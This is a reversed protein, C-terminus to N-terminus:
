LYSQNKEEDHHNLSILEAVICTAGRVLDAPTERRNEEEAPGAATPPNRPSQPPPFQIAILATPPRDSNQEIQVHPLVLPPPSLLKPQHTGIKSLAESSRVMFLARGSMMLFGLGVKDGGLLPCKVKIIKILFLRCLNISAITFKHM